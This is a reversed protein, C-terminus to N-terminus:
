LKKLQHNYTIDIAIYELSSSKMNEFIQTFIKLNKFIDDKQSTM